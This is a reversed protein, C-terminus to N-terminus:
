DLGDTLTTDFDSWDEGAAAMARYTDQWSLKDQRGGSLSIGEDMEQSVPSDSVNTTATTKGM